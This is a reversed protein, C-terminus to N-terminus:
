DFHSVRTFGKCDKHKGQVVQVEYFTGFKNAFKQKNSLIKVAEGDSVTCVSHNELEDDSKAEAFAYDPYINRRYENSINVRYWTDSPLDSDAEPAPSAVPVENSTSDFQPISDAINNGTVPENSTSQPALPVPEDAAIPATSVEPSPSDIQEESGGLTITIEPVSSGPQLAEILMRLQDTSPLHGLSSSALIGLVFLVLLRVRFRAPVWFFLLVALFNAIADFFPLM